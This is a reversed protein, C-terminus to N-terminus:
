AKEPMEKLEKAHERVKVFARAVDRMQTESALLTRQSLTLRERCYQEAKPLHFNRYDPAGELIPWAFPNYSSAKWDQQFM